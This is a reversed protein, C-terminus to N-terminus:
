SSAAENIVAAGQRLVQLRGAVSRALTSPQRGALNGGDVYFDVQDGFYVEAEHATNAPSQGPRNASSTLLPGTKELLGRLQEDAPIRVALDGLGQDLYALQEAAPIIISLPAPWLHAVSRVVAADLGLAILQEASAAIITGPKQERQKLAYLRAVAPQNSAIAVLGYITDTPIIGVGGNVLLTPLQPDNISALVSM